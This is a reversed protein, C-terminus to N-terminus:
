VELASVRAELTEIRTLAEQLAATLLPVLKSQDIGQYAPIEVDEYVAESVLNGEEDYQAPTVIESKTTMADKVGEVAEPVVEQAEHAIFGDVTRGAEMGVGDIFNFRCPKLQKVRATANDLPVINEKTRYDSTTTFASARLISYSHGADGQLFHYKGIMGGGALPAYNIYLDGGSITYNDAFNFENGGYLLSNKGSYKLVTHGADTVSTTGVLLNGSSDIRMAESTASYDSIGGVGFLIGDRSAINLKNTDVVGIAMTQGGTTREFEIGAGENDYNDFLTQNGLRLYSSGGTIPLIYIPADASGAHGISLGEASADWFFKATTGTDEYFSIDGNNHLKLRETLTGTGTQETHFELSSGVSSAGNVVNRIESDGGAFSSNNWRIAAYQEGVIGYPTNLTIGSTDKATDVTLGDMTATGTVDIGTSTTELVDNSGLDAIDRAKSM